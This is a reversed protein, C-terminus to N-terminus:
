AAQTGCGPCFRADAALAAHCRSCAKGRQATGCQACFRADAANLAGCGACALQSLALNGGRGGNAADAPAQWGWGHRDRGRADHGGHGGQRSGGHHGGGHGGNGSNGHGSGHGGGHGGLIRKLFSM